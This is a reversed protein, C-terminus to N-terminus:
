FQYGFRIQLKGYANQASNEIKNLDYFMMLNLNSYADKKPLNFGFGFLNSNAQSKLNGTANSLKESPLPQWNEAQVFLNQAFKWRLMLRSSWLNNINEKGDTLQAQYVSGLGLQIKNSFAYGLLPAVKSMDLDSKNIVLDAETFIKDKIDKETPVDFEKVKGTVESRVGEAINKESLYSANLDNLDEFSLIGKNLDAVKSILNGYKENISQKKTELNEIEDNMGDVKNMNVKKSIAKTRKEKLSSIKNDLKLEQTQLFSIKSKWNSKLAYLDKTSIGSINNEQIKSVFESSNAKEEKYSDFVQNREQAVLLEPNFLCFVLYAVVKLTTIITLKLM